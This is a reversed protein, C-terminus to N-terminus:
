IHHRLSSLTMVSNPDHPTVFIAHNYLLIIKDALEFRDPKVSRYQYLAKDLNTNSMGSQSFSYNWNNSTNFRVCRLLSFSIKTIATLFIKKEKQRFMLGTKSYLFTKYSTFLPNTQSRVISEDQLIMHTFNNQHM